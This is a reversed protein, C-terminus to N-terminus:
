FDPTITPSNNFVATPVSVTVLSDSDHRLIFIKKHVHSYVVQYKVEWNNKVSSVEQAIETWTNTLINVFWMMVKNNTWKSLYVFLYNTKLISVAQLDPAWRDTGFIINNKKKKRFTISLKITKYNDTKKNNDPSLVYVYINLKNSCFLFENGDRLVGVQDYFLHFPQLNIISFNNLDILHTNQVIYQCRFISRGEPVYVNDSLTSIFQKKDTDTHYVVVCKNDYLRIANVNSMIEDLEIMKIPSNLLQLACPYTFLGSFDTYAKWAYVLIEGSSDLDGTIFNVKTPLNYKTFIKTSPKLYSTIIQILEKVFHIKNQHGTTDGAFFIKIEKSQHIFILQNTNEQELLSKAPHSVATSKSKPNTIAIASM